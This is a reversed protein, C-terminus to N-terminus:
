FENGKGETESLRDYMEDPFPLSGWISYPCEDQGICYRQMDDNDCNMPLPTDGGITNSFEYRIQYDTVQEDYWPWRSFIDKLDAVITELDSDQYQPLWMVMRAFSYLDKRVPKKEHLREAMNAMCPLEFLDEISEVDLPQVDRSSEQIRYHNTNGHQRITLNRHDRQSALLNGLSRPSSIRNCVDRKWDSEPDYAEVAEFLEKASHFEGLSVVEDPVDRIADRLVRITREGPNWDRWIREHHGTEIFRDIRETIASENTTLWTLQDESLNEEQVRLLKKFARRAYERYKTDFDGVPVYLCNDKVRTLLEGTEGPETDAHVLCDRSAAAMPIELYLGESFEPMEKIGTCVRGPHPGDEGPGKAYLVEAIDQQLSGDGFERLLSALNNVYLERIDYLVQVKRPPAHDFKPHAKVCVASLTALVALTGPEDVFPEEAANARIDEKFAATGFRELDNLLDDPQDEGDVIYRNYGRTFLQNIRTTGYELPLTAVCYATREDEVPTSRSM